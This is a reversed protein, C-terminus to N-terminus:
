SDTKDINNLLTEKESQLEELRRSRARIKANFRDVVAGMETSISQEWQAGALNNKAMQKKKRLRALEDDMSNQLGKIRKREGQIRRDIDRLRNSSRLVELRVRDTPVSGIKAPPTITTKQSDIGCPTQSFIPRGYEGTCKFVQAASAPFTAIMLLALVSRM